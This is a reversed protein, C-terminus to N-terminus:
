VEDIVDSMAFLKDDIEGKNQSTKSSSLVQKAV